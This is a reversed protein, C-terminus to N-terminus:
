LRALISTPNPCPVIDSCSAPTISNFARVENLSSHNLLCISRSWAVGGFKINEPRAPSKWFNSSRLIGRFANLYEHATVLFRPPRGSSIARQARDRNLGTTFRRDSPSKSCDYSEVVPQNTHFHFSPVTKCRAHYQGLLSDGSPNTGTQFTSM